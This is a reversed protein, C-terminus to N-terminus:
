QFKPISTELYGNMLKLYKKRWADEAKIARDYEAGRTGSLKSVFYSKGAGRLGIVIIVM